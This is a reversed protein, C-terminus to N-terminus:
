YLSMSTDVEIAWQNIGGVLNQVKKFGSALLIDTARASRGGSRCQMVYSQNPDLENIRDALEGLPIHISGEIASIDREFEERVDVVILPTNEDLKSKLEQCTIEPVMGSLHLM